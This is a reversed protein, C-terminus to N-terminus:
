LRKNFSCSFRDVSATTSVAMLFLFATPVLPLQDLDPPETIHIVSISFEGCSCCYVAFCYARAISSPEGSAVGDFLISHIDPLESPIANQFRPSTASRDHEM